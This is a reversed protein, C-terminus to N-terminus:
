LATNQTQFHSWTLIVGPSTQLAAPHEQEHLSARRGSKGLARLIAPFKRKVTIVFLAFILVCFLKCRVRMQNLYMTFHALCSTHSSTSPERFLHKSATYLSTVVGFPFSLANPINHASNPVLKPWFKPQIRGSHAFESNALSVKSPVCDLGLSFLSNPL